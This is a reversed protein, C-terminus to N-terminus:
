RPRIIDNYTHTPPSPSAVPLSLLSVTLPPPLPHLPVFPGRVQATVVVINTVIPAASPAATTACTTTYGFTYGNTASTVCASPICTTTGATYTYGTVPAGCTTSSFQTQQLVFTGAPYTPLSAGYYSFGATCGAATCTCPQAAPASTTTPAGTCATNAYYTVYLNNKSDASLIYAQAANNPVCVGLPRLTGTLPTQAPM